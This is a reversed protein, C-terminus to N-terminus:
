INRDNVDLGSVRAQWITLSRRTITAFVHGNRSVQLGIIETSDEDKNDVDSDKPAKEVGEHIQDRDNSAPVGSREGKDFDSDTIFLNKGARLPDYIRPVGYPWYM